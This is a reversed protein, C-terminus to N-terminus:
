GDVAHVSAMIQNCFGVVSELSDSGTDWEGPYDPGCFRVPSHFSAQGTPLDVYLVHPAYSESPDNGWGWGIGCNDEQLYTCLKELCGGKRGYALEKYGGRYRKARTSSKQARFLEAAIRGLLGCKTLEALYTRTVAACSGSFVSYGDLSYAPPRKPKPPEFTSVAKVLTSQKRTERIECWRRYIKEISVGIKSAKKVAKRVDDADLSIAESAVVAIYEKEGDRNIEYVGAGIEYREISTTGNLLVKSPERFQRNLVYTRHPGNIRAVYGEAGEAKEITVTCAPQVSASEM